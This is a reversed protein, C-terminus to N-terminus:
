CFYLVQDILSELEWDSLGKLLHCASISISVGGHWVVVCVPTPGGEIPVPADDVPSQPVAKSATLGKLTSLPRFTRRCLEHRSTQLCTQNWSSACWSCPSWPPAPSRCIGGPPRARGRTSSSCLPKAWNEPTQLDIVSQPPVKKKWLDKEYFLRINSFFRIARNLKLSPVMLTLWLFLDATQGLASWVAVNLAYQGSWCQDDTVIHLLLSFFNQDKECM